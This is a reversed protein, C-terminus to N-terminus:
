HPSYFGPDCNQKCTLLPTQTLLRPCIRVQEADPVQLFYAFCTCYMMGVNNVTSILSLSVRQRAENRWFELSKIAEEIHKGLIGVELGELQEAVVPYISQGETFDVQVTRTERGFRDEAPHVPINPSSISPCCLFHGQQQQQQQKSM